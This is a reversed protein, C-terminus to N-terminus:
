SSSITPEFGVRAVEDRPRLEASCLARKDPSLNGTRIRDDGSMTATTYRRAGSTTLRATGTRTRDTVGSERARKAKREPTRGDPAAPWSAPLSGSGRMDHAAASRIENSPPPSTAFGM